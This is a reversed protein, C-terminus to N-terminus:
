CGQNEITPDLRKPRKNPHVLVIDYKFRRRGLRMRRGHNKTIQSLDINADILSLQTRDKSLVKKMFTRRIEAAAGKVKRPVIRIGDRPHFEWGYGGLITWRIEEVTFSPVRIPNPNVRIRGRADVLITVEITM